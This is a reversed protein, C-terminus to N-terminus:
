GQPSRANNVAQDLLQRWKPKVPQAPEAPAPPTVITQGSVVEPNKPVPESRPSSGKASTRKQKIEESKNFMGQLKKVAERAKEVRDEGTEPIGEVLKIADLRRKEAAELLKKYREINALEAKNVQNALKNAEETLAKFEDDDALVADEIFKVM